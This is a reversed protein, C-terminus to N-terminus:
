GPDKKTRLFDPLSEKTRAMVWHLQKNKWTYPHNLSTIRWYLPPHPQLQFEIIRFFWNDRETTALPKRKKDKTLSYTATKDFAEDQSTGLQFLGERMQERGEQLLGSAFHDARVETWQAVSSLYLPYLIMLLYFLVIFLIVHDALLEIQDYFFYVLLAIMGFFVMRAIQNILVDRKKIHIAEHALIAEVARIPLEMTAKTLMITGRGINMGTALGNYVPSDILFLRTKLIGAKAFIANARDKLEGDLVQVADSAAILVRDSIYLNFLWWSLVFGTIVIPPVDLWILMFLLGTYASIGKVAIAFYGKWFLNKLRKPHWLPLVSTIQCEEQNQTYWAFKDKWEKLNSPTLHIHEGPFSLKLVSQFSTTFDQNASLFTFLPHLKLVDPASEHKIEKLDALPFDRSQFVSIIVLREEDPLWYVGTSLFNGMREITQTLAAILAFLIFFKLISYTDPAFIFFVLAGFSAFVTLALDALIRKYAKDLLIKQYNAVALKRKLEMRKKRKEVNLVMGINGYVMASISFVMMAESFPFFIFLYTIVAVIVIMEVAIGIYKPLIFSLIAIAVAIFIFAIITLTDPVITDGQDNM